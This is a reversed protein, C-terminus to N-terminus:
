MSHNLRMRDISDLSEDFTPMLEGLFKEVKSVDLSMDKPRPARLKAEDISASSVLNANLRYRLALRKVFDYKSIREGGSVNYVGNARLALMSVIKQVLLESAIPTFYVDSFANVRRGSSLENIAWQDFSYRWPLSCGFFNTRIVLANDCCSLAAIEGGAKTKAYVNLPAPEDRETFFSRDGAWLHDTSVHVFQCGIKNAVSALWGVLDSNLLTAKSRQDECGDVSTFGICNVIVDPDHGAFHDDVADRSSLDARLCNVHKDSFGNTLQHKNSVATVKVGLNSLHSVFRAGLLGSAGVVWWHQNEIRHM